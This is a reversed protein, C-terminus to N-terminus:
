LNKAAWLAAQTRSPVDIKRFINYIHTKVTHTSICLNDAIKQNSAGSAILSLITKQRSTLAELVPDTAHIHQMSATQREIFCESMIKRSVWLEGRTISCVGRILDEARDYEHFIGRVGCILADKEFRASKPTNFIALLHDKKLMNSVESCLRETLNIHEKDAELLILPKNGHRCGGDALEHLSDFVSCRAGTHEQLFISIQEGLFRSKAVIKVQHGKYCCDGCHGGKMEISM